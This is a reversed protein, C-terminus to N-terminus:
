SISNLIRQCNERFSPINTLITSRLRTTNVDMYNHVVFDRMKAAAGWDVNPHESILTKSLRKVYEGIQILSFICGYQLSIKHFDEEDSGHLGVLECIDDCFGVIIELYEADRKLSQEATM